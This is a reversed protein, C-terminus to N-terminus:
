LEDMPRGLDGVGVAGILVDDLQHQAELVGVPGDAADDVRDLLPHGLGGAREIGLLVRGAQLHGGRDGDVEGMAAVLDVLVRDVHEPHGGARLEVSMGGRVHGVPEFRGPDLELPESTRGARNARASSWPYAPSVVVLLVGMASTPGGMASIATPSTRHSATVAVMAPMEIWVMPRIRNRIPTAQSTM